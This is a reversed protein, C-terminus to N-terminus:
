GLLDLPLFAWSRPPSSIYLLFETLRQLDHEDQGPPGLHPLEHLKHMSIPAALTPLAAQVDTKGRGQLTCPPSRTEFATADARIRSSEHYLLVFSDVPNRTKSLVLLACSPVHFVM